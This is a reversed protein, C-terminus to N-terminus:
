RNLVERLSLRVSVVRSADYTIQGMGDEVAEFLGTAQLNIEREASIAERLPMQVGLDFIGPTIEIVETVVFPWYNHSMIQGVNPTVSSSVRLETAGAKAARAAKCFPEYAFGKGTSFKFGTSFKLGGGFRSGTYGVPDCLPVQYMGVRGQAKARIARWQAIEQGKLLIESAGFWRPFQNYVTQTYGATNAGLSQGRWDIEWNVKLHRLFSQPITIIPRIM